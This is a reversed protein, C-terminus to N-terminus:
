LLIAEPFPGSCNREWIVERKNRKPILRASIAAAV